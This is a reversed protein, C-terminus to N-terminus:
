SSPADEQGVPMLGDVGTGEGRNRPPHPKPLQLGILETYAPPIAQSLERLTMWDIDMAERQVPLPVRYEGVNCVTRGNPRNTSGPFRRETFAGHACGPGVLPCNSEFLRHRRVPLGLATGCLTIPDRLPAGPVNEIVYPVGGAELRERTPAILDPHDQRVHSANNRYMTFAQCPPSAHIADFGDLPFTLADAQVFRFPYHPQAERDVGVVDFGARYYGMAAGGAGCFLDLMLPRQRVADGDLGDADVAVVGLEGAVRYPRDAVPGGARAAPPPWSSPGDSRSAPEASIVLALRGERRARSERWDLPPEILRTGCRWCYRAGSENVEACSPRPCVPLAAKSRASAM